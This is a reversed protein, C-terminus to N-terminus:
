KEDKLHTFFLTEAIASCLLMTTPHHTKIGNGAIVDRKEIDCFHHELFNDEEKYDDGYVSSSTDVSGIAKPLTPLAVLRGLYMVGVSMDPNIKLIAHRDMYKFIFGNKSEVDISVGPIQPQKPIAEIMGTYLMYRAVACGFSLHWPLLLFDTMCQLNGIPAERHMKYRKGADEGDPQLLPSCLYGICKRVNDRKDCFVHIRVPFCPTVMNEDSPAMPDKKSVTIEYRKDDFDLQAAKCSYLVTGCSDHILGLVGEVHDIYSNIHNM